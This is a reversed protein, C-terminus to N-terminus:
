LLDNAQLLHLTTSVSEVARTKENFTFTATPLDYFFKTVIDEDETEKHQPHFDEIVKKVMDNYVNLTVNKKDDNVIVSVYWQKKCRSFKQKMNCHACFVIKQKDVQISKM